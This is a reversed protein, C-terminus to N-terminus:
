KNIDYVVKGNVITYLVKGYVKRGNFPTNKGMSKFTDSNIEYQENIDFVVIDAVKGVALNGKDIGIIKAPNTSMKEVLQSLTLVKGKVLETYSLALATESGVIGFPASKFSQTKESSHHPAHDTAIVDIIGKKLAAKLTKVDNKSRLPPNMKYNADDGPIDMDTLTFHHPCVEATVKVGDHKALAIYKVSMATSVHCLHLRCGTETALIIDRVTIIDEVSNSIGILGLEESKPGENIVGYGVLNKDECHAMILGDEKAVQKMAKKYLATNMVSKGDESFGIVGAQALEPINVLYEGGQNMTIASIPLVNVVAEEECKKVIGKYLEVNDMAPMTNPMACITTYGGHAAALAGTKITEKHEYGPERLHVHLDIFGPAVYKGEADILEDAEESIYESVKTVIGDEVLVDYRGEIGNAPDILMGNKILLKM